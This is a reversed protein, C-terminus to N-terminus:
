NWLRRFYKAFLYLVERCRDDTETIVKLKYHAM